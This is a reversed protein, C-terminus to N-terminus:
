FPIITYNWKPLTRNKIIKIMAFDEDTIKKGKQYKRKDLKAKIRLGKKTTTSGILNIIAEYSELPQGNWQSSIYSFMRHEIKNWKSTGPPYHAVTIELGTKDSFRQLCYEWLRNNSGNSGEGDACILIEQANPYNRIGFENWWKMISNIVFEATDRSIGVNVLGENRGVDYTGDPIAKGTGRLPFDHDEVLVPEGKKRWIRGQNKVNEVLEKKKADVSIVPLGKNLFRKVRRNIMKFQRDRDPNSERSLSKRNGQLSYDMTKLIRYITTHDVQHGKKSLEEAMKRVSKCTWRIASMPDGGTTEQLMAEVDQFLSSNEFSNKQGGGIERIRESSLKKSNKVEKRGKIITTKSISTACSVAEIGGYGIESAM